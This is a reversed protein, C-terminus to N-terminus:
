DTPTVQDRPVLQLVCATMRFRPVLAFPEWAPLPPSEQTMLPQFEAVISTASRCDKLLFEVRVHMVIPAKHEVLSRDFRWARVAAKAGEDFARNSSTRLAITARDVAGASDVTFDLEAWGEVGASRLVPPYYQSINTSLPRLILRHACGATAPPATAPCSGLASVRTGPHSSACAMTTIAVAAMVFRM